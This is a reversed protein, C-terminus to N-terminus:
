YCSLGPPEVRGVEHWLLGEWVLFTVGRRVYQLAVWPEQVSEVVTAENVQVGLKKIRKINKRGDTIIRMRVAISVQQLSAITGTARRVSEEMGQLSGQAVSLEVQLQQNASTLAEVASQLEAKDGDM